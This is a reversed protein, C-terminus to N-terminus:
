SAVSPAPPRVIPTMPVGILVLNVVCGVVAIPYWIRPNLAMPEEPAPKHRRLRSHYFTRRHADARLGAVM